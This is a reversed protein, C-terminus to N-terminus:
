GYLCAFLQLWGLMLPLNYGTRLRKLAQQIYSKFTGLPVNMIKHAEAHTHGNFYVLKVAEQHHPELQSLIGSLRTVNPDEEREETMKYVGSEEIQIFQKSNRIRNLSLNKAIRYAWTYFRGKKEDYTAIKQWIAIFTEQLVDKAEDEKGVVRLIVGYLSGSYMDYLSYLARKEGNKLATILPIEKRATSM